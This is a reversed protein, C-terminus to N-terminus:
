LNDMAQTEEMQVTLYAKVDDCHLYECIQFDEQKILTM